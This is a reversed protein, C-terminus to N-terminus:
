SVGDTPSRAVPMCSEDTFKDEQAHRQLQRTLPKREALGERANPYNPKNRIVYKFMVIEKPKDSVNPKCRKKLDYEACTYQILFSGCWLLSEGPDINANVKKNIILSPFAEGPQLKGAICKSQKAYRSLNTLIVRIYHKSSNM